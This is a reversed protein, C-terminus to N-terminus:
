ALRPSLVTRHHTQWKDQRSPLPARFQNWGWFRRKSDVRVLVVADAAAEANLIWGTASEPGQVPCRGVSSQTRLVLPNLNSLGDMLATASTLPQNFVRLLVSSLLGCSSVHQQSIEVSKCLRRKRRISRMGYGWERFYLRGRETKVRLRVIKWGRPV